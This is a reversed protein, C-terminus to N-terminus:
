RGACCCRHQQGQANEAGCGLSAYRGPRTVHHKAGSPDVVCSCGSTWLAVFPRQMHYENVLQQFLNLWENPTRIIMVVPFRFPPCMSVTFKAQALDFRECENPHCSGYWTKPPLWLMHGDAMRSFRLGKIGAANARWVTSTTSPIKWDCRLRLHTFSGCPYPPRAHLFEGTM